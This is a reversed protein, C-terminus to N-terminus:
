RVADYENGKGTTDSGTKGAAITPSLSAVEKKGEGLVLLDSRMQDLEERSFDKRGDPKIMGSMAIRRSAAVTDLLPTSKVASNAWILSPSVLMLMMAFTLM